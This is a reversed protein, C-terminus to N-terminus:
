GRTQNICKPLMETLLDISLFDEVVDSSNSPVGTEDGLEVIFETGGSNANGNGCIGGEPHPGDNVSAVELPKKSITRCTSVRVTVGVNTVVPDCDDVGGILYRNASLHRLRSAGIRKLTTPGAQDHRASSEHAPTLEPRRM